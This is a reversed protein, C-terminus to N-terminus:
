GWNEVADFLAKATTPDNECDFRTFRVQKANKLENYQKQVIGQIRGVTKGDKVALYFVSDCTKKYINKDTFMAMEDGYLPPVFYPNGKYLRLPYEVFEKRQKRTRVEVIELM